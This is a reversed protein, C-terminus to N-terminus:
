GPSVRRPPTRSEKEQQKACGVTVPCCRVCLSHAVRIQRSGTLLPGAGERKSSRLAQLMPATVCACATRQRLQALGSPSPGPERRRVAQSLLCRRPRSVRVPPARGSGPLVRRSPARSGGEQQKAAGVTVTGHCVCLGHQAELWARGPLFPARSGGEPQKASGVAVPGRCVYLCHAAGPGLRALGPPSPGEHQEACGVANRVSVLQARGLGPLFRSSHTRSGGEQQEACGASARCRQLWSVRM